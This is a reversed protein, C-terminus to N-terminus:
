RLWCMRLLGRMKSPGFFRALSPREEFATIRRPMPCLNGSVDGALPPPYIAGSQNPPLNGSWDVAGSPPAPPSLVPMDVPVYTDGGVDSVGGYQCRRRALRLARYIDSMRSAKWLRRAEKQYTREYRTSIGESNCM